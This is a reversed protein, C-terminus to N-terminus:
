KVKEFIGEEKFIFDTYEDFDDRTNDKFSYKNHATYVTIIRKKEDYEVAEIALRRIQIPHDNDM